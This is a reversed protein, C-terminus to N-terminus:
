AGRALERELERDVRESLTYVARILSKGIELLDIGVLIFLFKSADVTVEVPAPLGLEPPIVVHIIGGGAVYIFFFLLTLGRGVALAHEYVTGKTLEISVAFFVVITAFLVLIDHPTMARPLTIGALAEIARSLLYVPIVYSTLYALVGAIAARVVRVVIAKLRSRIGEEYM